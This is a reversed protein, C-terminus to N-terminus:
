HVLADEIDFSLEGDVVDFSEGCPQQGIETVASLGRHQRRARAEVGRGSPARALRPQGIHEVGRFAAAGHFDDGSGRRICIARRYWTGAMIRFPPPTLLLRQAPPPLGRDCSRRVATDNEAASFRERIGM